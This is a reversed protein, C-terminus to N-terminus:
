GRLGRIDVVPLPGFSQEGTFLSQEFHHRAAMRHQSYEFLETPKDFARGAPTVAADNQDIRATRTEFVSGCRAKRGTEDGGNNASGYIDIRTWARHRGRDGQRLPPRQSREGAPQAPMGRAGFLDAGRRGGSREPEFGLAADIAGPRDIAM